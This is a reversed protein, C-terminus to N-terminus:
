YSSSSSNGAGKGTEKESNHEISEGSLGIETDLGNAGNVQGSEGEKKNETALGFDTDLEKRLTIEKELFVALFTVGAFVVGIQWVRKLTDVYVSIVEARIAPPFSNVLGASAHQYAKGHSFSDRVSLDIRYSLQDFRNNFVAGPIAVGWITGLSRIFSWTGTSSATESEPLGAQVTQLTTSILVGLGTGLFVLYVAWVATHTNSDLISSLGMMLTLLGTAFLHLPKYRGTKSIVSGGVAAFVPFAIVEPILNVGSRTVSAGLVSQFYVPYFYIIWFALLMNMFSLFFGVCTTRNKFHDPPMVPYPCWSSMEFLFFIVLGVLGIVLPALVNPASWSYLTGGYTLAWLIAITAGILIANGIWDISKLKDRTTGEKRSTVQLFLVLLLLAFGGFPLNIYFVWRWSANETLVGGVFPGLSSGVAIILFLLGIFNGRERMPVLDCIIMDILMNIGGAGLGQVARAGILMNMSNAGGCLGSGLLFIATVTIM